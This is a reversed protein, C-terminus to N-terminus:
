TVYGWEKFKEELEPDEEFAKFYIYEPALDAGNPWSLTALEPDVELQSFLSKDKLAEFVPGGLADELDAIGTRGDNFTVAVKYDGVYRAKTVHLIM